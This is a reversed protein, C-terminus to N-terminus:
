PKAPEETKVAIKKSQVEPKKPVTVTLVGHDLSAELKDTDAGEPLSFSRSFSGFSREYTRFQESRDEKEEERKGAVTLRNGTMSVDLNKDQIGPVDAKVLYSDPTEKVEFAPAFSARGTFIPVHGMEGFPDWSLLARMHRWPDWAEAPTTTPRDGGQKRISVNSM